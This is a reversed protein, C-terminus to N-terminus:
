ALMKGIYAEIFTSDLEIALDFAEQAEDCMFSHFCLYGIAFHHHVLSSLNLTIGLPRQIHVLKVYSEWPHIGDSVNLTQSTISKTSAFLVILVFRLM